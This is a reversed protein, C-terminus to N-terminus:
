PIDLTEKSIPITKDKIDSRCRIGQFRYQDMIKKQEAAPLKDFNGPWILPWEMSFLPVFDLPVDTRIDPVVDLPIPPPDPLKQGIKVPM